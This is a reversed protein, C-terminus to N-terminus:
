GPAQRAAEIETLIEVGFGLMGPDTVAAGIAFDTRDVSVAGSMVAREGEITLSFPLTLPVTVGRLTLEGDAEFREPGLRRFSDARFVAQPHTAVNLYDAGRAQASVEGLTLSATDIWVTVSAEELRDPDFRIDARWAEFRGEVRAGMQRIAIGLGSRAHDVRWEGATPAAVAPTPRDQAFGAALAAGLVAGQLAGALVLTAAKSPQPRPPARHQAPRIFPIMRALTGDRDILAHKVAGAIHLTLAAILTLAMAWHMLGFVGSLAPSKPVFPLDQGFPWWIPAFGTSAAHHLWGTLPTLVIAGYLVWHVTEAAFAELRKEGNLLAPRPNALAWAIRALAVALAAMGLTKHLSHVWIKDAIRVATTEPMEVMWLGLPLQILILGATLWHLIQAVLGYRERTNIALM